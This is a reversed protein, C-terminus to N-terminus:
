CAKSGDSLRSRTSVGKGSNYLLSIEANTLERSWFALQNLKGDLFNIGGDNPGNGNVAQGIRFHWSGQHVVFGVTGSYSKSGGDQALFFAGGIPNGNADKKIGFGIVFHYWTTASLAASNIHVVQENDISRVEFWLRTTGGSKYLFATPGPRTSDRRTLVQM